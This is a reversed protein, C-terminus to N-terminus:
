IDYTYNYTYKAMNDVLFDPHQAQCRTSGHEMYRVTVM